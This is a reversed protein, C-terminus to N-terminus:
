QKRKKNRAKKKRQREAKRSKKRVARQRAEQIEEEREPTFDSEEYAEATTIQTANDVSGRAALTLDTEVSELMEQENLPQAHMVARVIEHRLAAQMEDFIRQGQRRYEV